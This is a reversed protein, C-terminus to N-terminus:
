FCSSERLSIASEDDRVEGEWEEKEEDEDGMEAMKKCARDVNSSPGHHRRGECNRGDISKSSRVM